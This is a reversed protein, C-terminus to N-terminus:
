PCLLSIWLCALLHLRYWIIGRTVNNPSLHLLNSLICGVCLHTNTWLRLSVHAVRTFWRWKKGKEVGTHKFLLVRHVFAPTPYCQFEFHFKSSFFLSSFFFFFSLVILPHMGYVVVLAYFWFWWTSNRDNDHSTKSFDNKMEIHFYKRLLFQSIFNFM